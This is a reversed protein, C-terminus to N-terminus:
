DSLTSLKIPDDYQYILKLQGYDTLHLYGIFVDDEPVQAEYNFRLGITQRGPELWQASQATVIPVLSGTTNKRFLVSQLAYRSATAVDVTARLILPSTSMKHLDILTASPISYSFAVHGTRYMPMFINENSSVNVELYWNAGQMNGEFFLPGSVEFQKNQIENAELATSHNNPSVLVAKIHNISYNVNNHKLSIIAKFTDGYQYELSSLEMHLSVPSDKECLTVVYTSDTKLGRVKSKLTFTGKGLEPKIKLLIHDLDTKISEDISVDHSYLVAAERLAIFAGSANKLELDPLAQKQLSTIHLLAGPTHIPLIIGDNLQAGTIQLTFSSSKQVTSKLSHIPSSSTNWSDQLTQHSLKSCVTCQYSKISHPPLNFANISSGYGLFVLGFLIRM